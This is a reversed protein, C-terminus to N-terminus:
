IRLNLLEFVIDPPPREPEFRFSFDSRTPSYLQFDSLTLLAHSQLHAPEARYEYTDTTSKSVLQMYPRVPTLAHGSKPSRQDSSRHSPCRVQIERDIVKKMMRCYLYGYPISGSLLTISLLVPIIRTIKM